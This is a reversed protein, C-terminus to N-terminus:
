SAAVAAPADGDFTATEVTVERAILLLVETVKAFSVVKDPRRPTLSASWQHPGAQSLESLSLPAAILLEEFIQAVSHSPRASTFTLDVRCSM